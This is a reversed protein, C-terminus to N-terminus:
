HWPALTGTTGAMTVAAFFKKKGTYARALRVAASTVDAGTKSFKVAEANPIVERILEAVEVELPHM